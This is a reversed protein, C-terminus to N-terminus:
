PDYRYIVFFNDELFNFRSDLDYGATTMWADLDLTTYKHEAFREPWESEYDIIAIRGTESLYDSLNNLYVAPNDIEHLTDCILILDVKEPIKPDYQSALVTKINELSEEKATEEIHALLDKHIDVAYVVGEPGVLTALPRTFLGSGAGIDAIKDGPQANLLEVVLDVQLKRVREASELIRVYELPDDQAPVPSLFSFVLILTLVPFGMRMAQM